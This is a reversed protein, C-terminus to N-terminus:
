FAGLHSQSEGLELNLFGRMLASCNMAFFLAYRLSIGGFM